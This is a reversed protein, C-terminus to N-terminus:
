PFVRALKSIFVFCLWSGRLSGAPPYAFCMLPYLLLYKGRTLDIEDAEQAKYDYAATYNPMISDDDQKNAFANWRQKDQENM